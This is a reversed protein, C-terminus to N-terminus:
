FTMGRTFSCPSTAQLQTKYTQGLWLATTQQKVQNTKPQQDLM